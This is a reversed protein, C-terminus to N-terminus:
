RLATFCKVEKMEGPGKPSKPIKLQQKIEKMHELGWLTKEALQNIFDVRKEQTLQGSQYLKTEEEFVQDM